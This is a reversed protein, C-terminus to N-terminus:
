QELAELIRKRVGRNFAQIEPDFVARTAFPRARVTFQRTGKNRWTRPAASKKWFGTRQKVTGGFNYQGAYPAKRVNVRVRVNTGKVNASLASILTGSDRLGKQAATRKAKALLQRSFPRLQQHLEAKLANAAQRM